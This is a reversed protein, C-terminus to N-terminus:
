NSVRDFLQVISEEELAKSRLIITRELVQDNEILHFRETLKMGNRDLTEVVLTDGEWGVVRQAAVEGVNVVRRGGFRYEEVVSRDFSIFLADETQTVKLAEGMELFVYVLGGKVKGSSRNRSSSRSTQSSRPKSRGFVAADAVGDTKRIADRVRRQDRASAPQIQWNGSLNVGAPVRGDRPLLVEPASCAALCLVAVIIHFRTIKM